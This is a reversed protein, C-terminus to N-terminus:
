ADAAAEVRGAIVSIRLWPFAARVDAATKLAAERSDHCTVVTGGDSKRFVVSHIHEAPAGAGPGAPDQGISRLVEGSGPTFGSMVNMEM